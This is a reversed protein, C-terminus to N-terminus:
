KGWDILLIGLNRFVLEIEHKRDLKEFDKIMGWSKELNYYETELLELNRYIEDAHHKDKFSM